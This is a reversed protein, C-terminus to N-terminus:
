WVQAASVPSDSAKVEIDLQGEETAEKVQEASLPTVFLGLSGDDKKQRNEDDMIALPKPTGDAETPRNM